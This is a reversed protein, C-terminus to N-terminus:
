RALRLADPRMKTLSSSSSGCSESHEGGGEGGEAVGRGAITCVVWPWSLFPPSYVIWSDLFEM